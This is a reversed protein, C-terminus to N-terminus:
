NVITHYAKVLTSWVFNICYTLPNDLFSPQQHKTIAECKCHRHLQGFKNWKELLVFCEFLEEDLKKLCKNYNILNRENIWKLRDNEKVARAYEGHMRSAMQSKSELQLLLQSDM